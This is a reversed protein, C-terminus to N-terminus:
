RPLDDPAHIQFIRGQWFQITGSESYPQYRWIGGVAEDPEGLLQRVDAATLNQNQAVRDLLIKWNTRNASLPFRVASVTTTAGAIRAKAQEVQKAAQSQVQATVASLRSKLEGVQRRADAATRDVSRRAEEVTSLQSRLQDVETAATALEAPVRADHGAVLLGGIFTGVALLIFLSLVVTRDFLRPRGIKTGCRPCFIAGDSPVQGCCNCIVRNSM